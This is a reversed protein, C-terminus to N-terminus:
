PNRATTTDSTVKLMETRNYGYEKITFQVQKASIASVRMRGLHQGVRARYQTQSYYDRLIAVSNRGAPDYAIATLRLDSLLPRIESSSMLSIYPDRRGSAHYSFVERQITFEAPPRAPLSEAPASAAPRPAPAAQAHARTTATLLLLAATALATIFRNM